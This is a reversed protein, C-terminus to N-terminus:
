EESHVRKINKLGTQLTDIKEKNNQVAKELKRIKDQLMQVENETPSIVERAIKRKKKLREITEDRRNLYERLRKPPLEQYNVQKRKTGKDATPLPETRVIPRFTKKRKKSKIALKEAICKRLSKRLVKCNRCTRRTKVPSSLSTTRLRARPIHDSRHPVALPTSPSLTSPHPVSVLPTSPHLTSSPNYENQSSTSPHPVYPNSPPKVVSSKPKPTGCINIFGQKCDGEFLKFEVVDTLKRYKELSALVKSIAYYADPAGPITKLIKQVSGV